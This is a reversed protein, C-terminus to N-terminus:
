NKNLILKKFAPFRMLVVTVAVTIILEPVIYFANYCISYLVPANEFTSGFISWQELNAFIIYGSIFHCLFRLLFAVTIGVYFGIEGKKRFVGATGLLTFPLIYDFLICGILMAPTLGWGFLGDMTIGLILQILSYVGSSIFGWKLGHRFSIMCIPLMSLLTISGGLPMQWIKVLSLVTALAVFLACETLRFINKKNKM